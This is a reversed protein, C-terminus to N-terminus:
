NSQSKGLHTSRSSSSKLDVLYDNGLKRARAAPNRAYYEETKLPDIVMPVEAKSDEPKPEQTHENSKTRRKNKKPQEFWKFNPKHVIRNIEDQMQQKKAADASVKIAKTKVMFEKVKDLALHARRKEEEESIRM